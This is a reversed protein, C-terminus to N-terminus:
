DFLLAQAFEVVTLNLFYFNPLHRGLEDKTEQIQIFGKDELTKLHNRVSDKSINLSESLDKLSIQIVQEKGSKRYVEILTRLISPQLKLVETTLNEM